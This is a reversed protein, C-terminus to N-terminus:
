TNGSAKSPSAQIEATGFSERGGKLEIHALLVYGARKESSDDNERRSGGRYIIFLHLWDPMINRM